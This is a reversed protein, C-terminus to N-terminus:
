LGLLQQHRMFNEKVSERRRSEGDIKIPHCIELIRDYIRKYKLDSPEKIESIAINTTVILPLGTQYRADVIAYVNELMYESAREAGLDDIILLPYSVLKNIYAQKDYIGNLTNLIRPFSTMMAPIGKDILANAICAAYFSKGTGVPGYLLLGMNESKIQEWKNVYRRMAASIKQNTPVDAEFTYRETEATLFCDRRLKAVKKALEKAKQEEVEAYYKAQECECMIPLTKEKDLVIMRTQKRTKCKGCYLIGDEGIYDGEHKEQGRVNKAINDIMKEWVDNNDFKKEWMNNNDIM